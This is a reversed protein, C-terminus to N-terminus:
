ITIEKWKYRIELIRLIKFDDNICVYKRVTLVDGWLYAM